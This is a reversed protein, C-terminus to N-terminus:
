NFTKLCGVHETKRAQYSLLFTAPPFDTNVCACFNMNPVMPGTAM